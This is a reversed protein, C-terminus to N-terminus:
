GSFSDYHYPLDKPDTFYQEFKLNKLRYYKLGSYESHGELIQYSRDGDVFLMGGEIYSINYSWLSPLGFLGSSAPNYIISLKKCLTTACGVNPLDFSQSVGGTRPNVGSHDM